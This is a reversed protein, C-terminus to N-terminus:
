KRSVGSSGFGKEGRETDELSDTEIFNGHIFPLIVFQAIRDHPNVTFDEGGFNILVVGIDGRYDADITGPGNLVTIGYKLALGSRPRVDGVMGEPLQVGIGTKIVKREFPKIVLPEKILAYLDAGAASTSAYTPVVADDDFKVFYIDAEKM